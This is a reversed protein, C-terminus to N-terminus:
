KREEEGREEGKEVLQTCINFFNRVSARQRDTKTL